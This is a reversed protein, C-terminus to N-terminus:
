TLFLNSCFTERRIREKFYNISTDNHSIVFDKGKKKKKKKDFLKEGFTCLNGMSTLSHLPWKKREHTTLWPILPRHHFEVITPFRLNDRRQIWLHVRITDRNSDSHFRIWWQIMRCRPVFRLDTIAHAIVIRHLVIESRYYDATLTSHFNMALFIAKTPRSGLFGPLNWQILQVEVSKSFNKIGFQQIMQLFSSILRSLTSRNPM